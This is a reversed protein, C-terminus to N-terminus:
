ASIHMHAIATQLQSTSLPKEIFGSILPSSDAKRKDESDISSSLIYINFQDKITEPFHAFIDLVEWGSLVPMNIDLLLVTDHRTPASYATLIYEIGSQPNTFDAIEAGPFIIEIYKRCIHNNIPDDDIIIFRSTTRNEM